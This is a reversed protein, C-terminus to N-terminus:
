GFVEGHARLVAEWDDMNTVFIRTRVVDELKAGSRELASAVNRLAQVTQGRADGVAVLEGDADTATTGAVFVSAGVRVARSYGAIPEWKTGTSIRTRTMEVTRREGDDASIPRRRSM